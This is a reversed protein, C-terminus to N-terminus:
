LCEFKENVKDVTIEGNANETMHWTVHYILVPIGEREWCLNMVYTNPKAGNTPLDYWWNWAHDNVVETVSYVVGEMTEAEGMAKSQFRKITGDKNYWYTETVTIDGSIWEGTCSIVGELPVSFSESEKTVQANAIVFAFVIIFLLAIKKM